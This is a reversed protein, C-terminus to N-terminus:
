ASALKPRSAVQWACLCPLWILVEVQTNELYIAAQM